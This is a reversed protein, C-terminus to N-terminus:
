QYRTSTLRRGAGVVQVEQVHRASEEADHEPELESASASTHDGVSFLLFVEVIRAAVSKLLPFQFLFYKCTLALCLSM